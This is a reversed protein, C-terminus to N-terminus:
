SACIVFVPDRSVQCDSLCVTADIERDTRVFSCAHVHSQARRAPCTEFIKGPLKEEKISEIPSFCPSVPKLGRPPKRGRGRRTMRAESLWGSYRSALVLGRGFLFALGEEHNTERREKEESIGEDRNDRGANRGRQEKQKDDGKGGINEKARLGKRRKRRRAILRENRARKRTQTNWEM